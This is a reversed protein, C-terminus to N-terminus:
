VIEVVVKKWASYHFFLEGIFIFEGIQCVNIHADKAVDLCVVQERLKNGKDTGM